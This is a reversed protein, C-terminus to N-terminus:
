HEELLERLAYLADLAQRPSLDDPRLARIKARVEPSVNAEAIRATQRHAYEGVAVVAHLTQDSAFALLDDGLQDAHTHYQGPTQNGPKGKKEGEFGGHTYPCRFLLLQFTQVYGLM